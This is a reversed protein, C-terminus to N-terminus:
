APFGEIFAMAKDAILRPREIHLFHGSDAIEEVRGLPPLSGALDAANTGWGMEELVTALLGLFPMTLAPLRFMAWDPRWPGFGGFRMSSDIKWRWGDAEERAGVTVLYDLWEQTMRPNMRARRRALDAPTGPKRRKGVLTHRHDLWGSIEGALMKTREHDAVDPMRRRSPVGDLNILHSFRFPHTEAVQIMLAGGKSHGIVPVPESTVASMVSVADRVDAEWTNLHVQDSDGHGRQDWSVVRWGAEAFLPAFVDFTRAFDFGGHVMFILRGDAPGWEYTAIGVGASDIRYSRDPGRAGPYTM